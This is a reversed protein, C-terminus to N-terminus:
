TISQGIKEISHICGTPIKIANYVKLEGDVNALQSSLLIYYQSEEILIGITEVLWSSSSAWELTSELTNWEQEKVHADTWVVRLIERM